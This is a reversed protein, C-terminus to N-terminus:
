PPHRRLSVIRSKRGALEIVREERLGGPRDPAETGEWLVVAADTKAANLVVRWEDAELRVARLTVSDVAQLRAQPLVTRLDGELVAVSLGMRRAASRLFAAKRQRREILVTELEPRAAALVLGPFGGGSGVDLLRGGEILSLGALSEAYHREVATEVTGPGILSIGPAWRRLEEYHALLRELM